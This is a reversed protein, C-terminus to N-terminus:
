FYEKVVKITIPKEKGYVVFFYLGRHYNKMDFYTSMNEPTRVLLLQGTEAYVQIQTPTFDINLQTQNSCPNPFAFYHPEVKPEPFYTQVTDIPKWKTTRRKGGGCVLRVGCFSRNQNPIKPRSAFTIASDFPINKCIFAGCYNTSKAGDFVQQIYNKPSCFFLENKADLFNPLFFLIHLLSFYNHKM